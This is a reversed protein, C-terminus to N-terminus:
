QAHTEIAYMWEPVNKAPSSSYRRKEPSVILAIYMARPAYLSPKNPWPTYGDTVTLIVDPTPHAQAAAEIGVRMDTGGGGVIEFAQIDQIVQITHSGADCNVVEIPEGAQQTVQHVIDSIESLSQGLLEPTMSGSTDLVIRVTPPKLARMSPMIIKSSPYRRSPRKYSYDTQGAIYAVAKRMWARMEQRWDVKPDLIDAAERVWGGPVKGANQADMIDRAVEERILERDFEDLSGDDTSEEEYDRTGGTAGSGCDTGLSDSGEGNGEGQTEDNEESESGSSSSSSSSDIDDSDGQDSESSSSGQESEQESEEDREGQSSPADNSNDTSQEDESSPGDKETKTDSSAEPKPPADSGKQSKAIEYMEETTMGKRWQPYLQNSQAYFRREPNPLLVKDDQLDTNIAADAAHNWQEANQSEGLEEFRKQHGRLVHGCEHLWVAAIEQPTWELCMKPDYYLRWRKDVAFTGLGERMVPTLALLAKSLYPHSGMALIRGSALKNQALFIEEPTLSTM